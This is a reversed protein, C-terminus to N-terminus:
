DGRMPKTIERGDARAQLVRSFDFHRRERPLNLRELIEGGAKMIAVRFGVETTLDALKVVYHLNKQMLLPMSIAAIGQRGDVKVAWPYGGYTTGLYLGIRQCMAQDIHALPDNQAEIAWSDPQMQYVTRMQPQRTM